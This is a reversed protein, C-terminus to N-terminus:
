LGVSPCSSSGQWLGVDICYDDSFVCNRMKARSSDLLQAAAAAATWAAAITRQECDWGVVAEDTDWMQVAAGDVIWGLFLQQPRHRPSSDVLQGTRM